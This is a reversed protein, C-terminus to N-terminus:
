TFEPLQSSVILPHHVSPSEVCLTQTGGMSLERKTKEEERVEIYYLHNGGSGRGLIVSNHFNIQGPLENTTWGLQNTLGPLFTTWGLDLSGLHQKLTVIKDASNQAYKLM